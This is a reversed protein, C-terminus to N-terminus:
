SHGKARLRARRALTVAAKRVAAHPGTCRQGDDYGLRKPDIAEVDVAFHRQAGKGPEEFLCKGWRHETRENVNFIALDRGDHAAIAIRAAVEHLRQTAGPKRFARSVTLLGTDADAHINGLDRM